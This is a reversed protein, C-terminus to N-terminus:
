PAGANSILEMAEVFLAPESALCRAREQVIRERNERLTDTALRFGFVDATTGSSLELQMADEASTTNSADHWPQMRAMMVDGLAKKFHGAEWYWKMSTHRDNKAPVPECQYASFGSFDWLQIQLAPFKQQARAVKHALLEKWAEFSQWLGAQEFMVLMQAHYPYILLQLAVGQQGALDIMADLDDRAPSSGTRSFALDHPKRVFTKAYEEARQRFIAYYGEERVYQSYDQMPNFGEATIAPLEQGQQVRLTAYADNLSNMSFLSDFRWQLKDAPYATTSIKKGSLSPLEAEANVMFDLFEVGLIIKDPTVGVSKLYNLERRSLSINSGSIALNYPRLNTGNNRLVAPDLGLEARSNGMIFANARAKRALALKIEERDQQPAPRIDNFGPIRVVQYLRYPDIVFVSVAVLLCGSLITVLMWRLYRAFMRSSNM